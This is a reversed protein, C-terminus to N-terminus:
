VTSNKGDKMAALIFIDGLRSLFYDELAPCLVEFDNDNTVGYLNSIMELYLNDPLKIRLFRKIDTLQKKLCDATANLDDNEEGHMPNLSIYDVGIEQM